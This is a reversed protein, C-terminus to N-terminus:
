IVSYSIIKIKLNLSSYVRQPICSTKRPGLIVLLFFIFIDKVPKLRHKTKLHFLKVHSTKEM